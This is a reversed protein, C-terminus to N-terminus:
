HEPNLSLPKPTLTGPKLNLTSFATLAFSDEPRRAARGSPALASARREACESYITVCPCPPDYERLGKM